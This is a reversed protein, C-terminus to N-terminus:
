YFSSPRAYITWMREGKKSISSFLDQTKWSINFNQICFYLFVFLYYLLIKNKKEFFTQHFFPFYWLFPYLRRNTTQSTLVGLYILSSSFKRTRKSDSGHFMFICGVNWFISCKWVLLSIFVRFCLIITLSTENKNQIRWM